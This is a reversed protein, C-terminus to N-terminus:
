YSTWIKKTLYYTSYFLDEGFPHKKNNENFEKEVHDQVYQRLSYQTLSYPVCMVPKKCIKRDIGYKVM